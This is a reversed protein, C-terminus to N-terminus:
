LSNYVKNSQKTKLRDKSAIAISKHSNPPQPTRADKIQNVYNLQLFM